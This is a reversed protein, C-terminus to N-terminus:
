RLAGGPGRHAPHLDLYGWRRRGKWQGASRPRHLREAVRQGNWYGPQAVGVTPVAPASVAMVALSAFALGSEDETQSTLAPQSRAISTEDTLGQESLRRWGAFLAVSAPSEVPAGPENGSVPSVGVATLVGSVVDPVTTQPTPRESIVAPVAQKHVPAAQAASVPTLTQAATVAAARQGTSAAVADVADVSRQVQSTESVSSAAGRPSQAKEVDVGVRVSDSGRQRLKGVSESVSQLARKKPLVSTPSSSQRTSNVSSEEAVVPGADGDTAGSTRSGTSTTTQASVKMGGTSDLSDDSEDIDHRDDASEADREAPSEDDDSEAPKDPSEDSESSSSGSSNSDSPEAWAVGPTNAVAAGIGLAVALAGVRGIYTSYGM